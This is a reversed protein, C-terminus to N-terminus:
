PVSLSSPKAAGPLIVLGQRNAPSAGRRAAPVAVVRGDEAPNEAVPLAVPVEGGQGKVSIAAIPPLAAIASRCVTWRAHNSCKRSRASRM